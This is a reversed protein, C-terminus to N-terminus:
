DSFVQKRHYELYKKNADSLSIKKSSDINMFICDMSSLRKSIIIKGDDAFSIFGGDFLADHNPCFLFGNEVDM